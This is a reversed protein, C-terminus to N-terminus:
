IIDPYDMKLIKAGMIGIDPNDEMDKYLTSLADEKLVVDNDLLLIYSYDKEMVARIGTNFGGTGGLNNENCILYVSDGYAARVADASGDNSANDVVYIDFGDMDQQHLSEINKLVYEKKNYNCIVVAISM